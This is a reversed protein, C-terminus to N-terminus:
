RLMGRVIVDVAEAESLGRAMLTEIQKKDVSGIAAEHTLKARQDNVLLKPIASARAQPGTLIEVCDVHGRAYPANGTVEGIVESVCQDSAVIRTKALGRANEGNLALSERIVISDRGKGYVKADLECVAERELEAVYDLRVVGASGEVLKFASRYFGGEGVRIHAVPLVEVGGQPGHYHTESYEMWAGRGVHIRARMRHEVRVANPFSCHAVFSVRAGEGIEFESVIEQVGEEPLVGFCLHVPQALHVGPEVTIRARAGQPTEEGEIRLGPIERRRLIRNHSVALGAFRDHLLLAPPAGAPEMARSLDGLETSTELM